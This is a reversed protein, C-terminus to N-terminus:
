NGRNLGSMRRGYEALVLASAHDKDEGELYFSLAAQRESPPVDVSNLFVEACEGKSGDTCLELGEDNLKDRLWRRASSSDISNAAPDPIEKYPGQTKQKHGYQHDYTWTWRGRSSRPHMLKLGMTQACLLRLELSDPAMQAIREQTMEELKPIAQINM